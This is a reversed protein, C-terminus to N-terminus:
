LVQGVGVADGLRDSVESSEALLLVGGALRLGEGEGDSGLVHGDPNGFRSAPRDGGSLEGERDSRARSVKGDRDGKLNTSQAQRGSRTKRPRM